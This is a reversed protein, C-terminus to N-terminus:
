NDFGWPWVRFPYENNIVSILKYNNNLVNKETVSLSDYNKYLM